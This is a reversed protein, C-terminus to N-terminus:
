QKDCCLSLCYVDELIISDLKRIEKETCLILHNIENMQSSWVQRFAYRPTSSINQHFGVIERGGTHIKLPRALSLQNVRLQNKVYLACTISLTRLVKDMLRENVGNNYMKIIRMNEM